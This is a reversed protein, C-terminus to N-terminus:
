FKLSAHLFQCLGKEPGGKEYPDFKVHGQEQIIAGGGRGGRM